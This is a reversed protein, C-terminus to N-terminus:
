KPTRNLLDYLDNTIRIQTLVSQQYKALADINGVRVSSDNVVKLNQLVRLDQLSDDISRQVVQHRGSPEAKLQKWLTNGEPTVPPAPAEKDTTESKLATDPYLIDCFCREAKLQLVRGLNHLERLESVTPWDSGRYKAHEVILMLANNLDKHEEIKTTV